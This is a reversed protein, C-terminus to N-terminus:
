MGSELALMSLRSRRQRSASLSLRVLPQAEGLVDADESSWPMLMTVLKLKLQGRVFKIKRLLYM